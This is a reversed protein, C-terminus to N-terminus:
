LDELVEARALLERLRKRSARELQEAAKWVRWRLFFGRADWWVFKLFRM